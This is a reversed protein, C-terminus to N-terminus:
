PHHYSAVKSPTPDVKRLIDAWRIKASRNLGVSQNVHTAFKFEDGHCIFIIKREKRTAAEISILQVMARSLRICSDNNLPITTDHENQQSHCKQCLRQPIVVYLM